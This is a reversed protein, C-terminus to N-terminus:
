FHRGCILVIRNPRRCNWVTAVGVLFGGLLPVNRNAPGLNMPKALLPIRKRQRPPRMRWSSASRIGIVHLLFSAAYSISRVYSLGVFEQYRDFLLFFVVTWGLFLAILKVRAKRSSDLNPIKTSM